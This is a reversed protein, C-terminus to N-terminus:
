VGVLWSVGEVVCGNVSEGVCEYVNVWVGM